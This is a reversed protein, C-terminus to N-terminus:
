AIYYSKDNPKIAEPIEIRSRSAPTLGYQQAAQNMKKWAEDRISLWPSKRSYGDKTIQTRGGELLQGEAEILESYAQCYVAFGGQDVLTLLGISILEPSLRDWESRAVDNLWEPPSAAGGPM